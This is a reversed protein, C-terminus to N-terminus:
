STCVDSIMLLIDNESLEEAEEGNEENFLVTFHDERIAILSHLIEMKHEDGDPINYVRYNRLDAPRTVGPIVPVNTDLQIRRMNAGVQSRVDGCVYKYLFRVCQRETSVLSNVFKIYRSYIIKRAHKGEVLEEVIWRHSNRPIHM